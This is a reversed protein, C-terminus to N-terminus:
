IIAFYWECTMSNNTIISASFIETVCLLGKSINRAQIIAFYWKCTMSNNTMISASFIETVYLNRNFFFFFLCVFVTHMPLLRKGDIFFYNISLKKTHTFSACVM